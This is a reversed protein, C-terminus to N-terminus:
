TITTPGASFATPVLASPDARSHTGIQSKGTAVLDFGGLLTSGPLPRRTSRSAITADRQEARREGDDGGAGAQLIELTVEISGPAQGWQSPDYDRLTYDFCVRGANSSTAANFNFDGAPSGACTGCFNDVYAYGWHASRACDATVFEM